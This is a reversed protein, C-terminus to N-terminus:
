YKKIPDSVFSFSIVVQGQFKSELQFCIVRVRFVFALMQRIGQSPKVSDFLELWEAYFKKRMGVHLQGLLFGSNQRLPTLGGRFSWTAPLKQVPAATISKPIVVEM